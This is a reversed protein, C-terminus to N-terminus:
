LRSTYSSMLGPDLDCVHFSEAILILSLYPSAAIFLGCDSCHSQILYSKERIRFSVDRRFLPRLPLVPDAAM